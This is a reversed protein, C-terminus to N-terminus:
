NEDPLILLSDTMEKLPEWKPYTNWCAAWLRGKADVQMQVPNAIGPFMKEDAFLNVEFGEPIHMKSIAQKGSLYDKSGEKAASSSKSGGGVNSIVEVPEPVNSDDVKYQKGQALAWIKPDRNATTIDLMSLEHELVERNTQGNVFKLGSRGGWIDNGDVARYRNHWHWNKDLVAQRLPELAPTAKVEKGSLASAIVGALRRNGEPLLHVGNLTLPTDVKNYLGQTASFLDVFSVIKEDALQHIAGTYLALNVNNSNGNPLLPTGLNEHAIPSFLVLRPASEGNFKTAKYKEVMSGLDSKFKGLGKEGGFSENYGFFVFVVDAECHKLYDEPSTFGKSRPRSTVTDGTFSLNRFSLKKDSLESQIATEVWGDHQMRDALGNGIICVKDGDQLPLQAQVSLPVFAVLAACQSFLSLLFKQSEM